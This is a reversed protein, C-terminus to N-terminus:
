PGGRAWNPRCGCSLAGWGAAEQAGPGGLRQVGPPGVPGDRSTASVPQNKRRPGPAVAAGRVASGTVEQRPGHVVRAPVILVSRRRNDLAFKIISRGARQERRQRDHHGSRHGRGLAPPEIARLRVGFLNGVLRCNAAASTSSCTLYTPLGEGGRAFDVSKAFEIGNTAAQVSNYGVKQRLPGDLFCRAGARRGLVARVDPAETEAHRTTSCRKIRGTSSACPQGPHTWSARITCWPAANALDIAAGVRPRQGDVLRSPLEDAHPPHGARVNSTSSTWIVM